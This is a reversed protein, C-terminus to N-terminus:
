EDSMAFALGVPTPQDVGLGVIDRRQRIGTAQLCSGQRESEGRLRDLETDRALNSSCDLCGLNHEGAAGDWPHGKWFQVVRAGARELTAWLDVVQSPKSGV